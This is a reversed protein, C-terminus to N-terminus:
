GGLPALNRLPLCLQSRNAQALQGPELMWGCFTVSTKFNPLVTDCVVAGVDAMRHRRRSLFSSTKDEPFDVQQCGTAPPNPFCLPWLRAKVRRQRTGARGTGSCTGEHGHLPPRRPGPWHRLHCGPFGLALRSELQHTLAPARDWLLHLSNSKRETDKTGPQSTDEQSSRM